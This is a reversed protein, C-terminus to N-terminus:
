ESVGVEGGEPWRLHAHVRRIEGSRYILSGVFNMAAPLGEPPTPDLLILGSILEPHDFALQRAVLGGLSHGVVVPPQTFLEPNALLAAANEVAQFLGAEEPAPPSWGLGPRDYRVVRVSDSLMSALRSWTRHDEGMGSILLVGLSGSGEVVVHLETEGASLMIGPGELSAELFAEHEAREWRSGVVAVALVLMVVVIVGRGFWILSGKLKGM